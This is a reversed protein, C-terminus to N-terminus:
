NDYQKEQNTIEEQVEPEIQKDIYEMTPTCWHFPLRPKKGCRPCSM